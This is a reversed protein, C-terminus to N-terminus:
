LGNRDYGPSKPCTDAHGLQYDGRDCAACGQPQMAKLAEGALDAAAKTERVAAIIAARSASAPLGLVERIETIMEHLYTDSM